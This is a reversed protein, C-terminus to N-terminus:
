KIQSKPLSSGATSCPSPWTISKLDKCGDKREQSQTQATQLQFPAKSSYFIPKLSLEECQVFVPFSFVPSM